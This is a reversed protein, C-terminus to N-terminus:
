GIVVDTLPPHAPHGIPAGSLVTSATSGSPALREAVQKLPKVVQDLSGQAAVTDPLRRLPELAEMWSQSM